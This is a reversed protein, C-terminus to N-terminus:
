RTRTRTAASGAVLLALIVMALPMPTDRDKTRDPQNPVPDTWAAAAALAAEADLTGWGTEPSAPGATGRLIAYVADVPIEPRQQLILHLVGAVEAAALSTGTATGTTSGPGPLAVTIGQGAAALDPKRVEGGGMGSGSPCGSTCAVTLVYRSEHLPGLMAAAPVVVAVGAQFLAEAQAVLTQTGAASTGAEAFSLIAIRPGSQNPGGHNSILWEMAQIAAQEAAPDLQTRTFRGWVQLDVLPAKPAAGLTAGGIRSAVATGHGDPDERLGLQGTPDLGSPFVFSHREIDGFENHSSDIGTDLVAVQATAGPLVALLPALLLLASAVRLVGGAPRRTWM